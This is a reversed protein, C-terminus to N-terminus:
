TTGHLLKDVRSTKKAQAENRQPDRKRVIRRVYSDSVGFREATTVALKDTRQKALEIYFSYIVDARNKGIPQLTFGLRMVYDLASQRPIFHDLTIGRGMDEVPVRGSNCMALRGRRFEESLARQFDRYLSDQKDQQSQIDAETLLCPEWNLSKKGALKRFATLFEAQNEPSVPSSLRPLKRLLKTLHTHEDDSLNSQLRLIRTPAANTDENAPPLDSLALPGLTVSPLPCEAAESMAVSDEARHHTESSPTVSTCYSLNPVRCYHVKGIVCDMGSAGSRTVPQVARALARALDLFGILDGEPLEVFASM